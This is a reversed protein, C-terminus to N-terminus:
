DEQNIRPQRLEEIAYSIYKADEEDSSHQRHGDLARLYNSLWDAIEERSPRLVAKLNKYPVGNVIDELCKERAYFGDHMEQLLAEAKERVIDNTM